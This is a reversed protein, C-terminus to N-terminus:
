CGSSSKLDVHVEREYPLLFVEILKCAPLHQRAFAALVGCIAALLDEKVRATRERKPLLGTVHVIIEEGLGAQVLDSPLFVTVADSHIKLQKVGSAARQIAEILLTLQHDSACGRPIGSVTIIPM